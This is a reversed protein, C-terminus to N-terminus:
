DNADDGPMTPDPDTQQPGTDAGRPFDQDRSMPDGTENPVPPIGTEDQPRPTTTEDQEAGYPSGQDDTRTPVDRPEQELPGTGDDERSCGLLGLALPLSLVFSLRRAKM